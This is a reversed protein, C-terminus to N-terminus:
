TLRHTGITNQYNESFEDKVYRNMLSSKGTAPDGILVLKFVPEQPSNKRGSTSKM